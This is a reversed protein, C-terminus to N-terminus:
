CSTPLDGAPRQWLKAFIPRKDLRGDDHRRSNLSCANRQRIRREVAASMARPNCGRRWRLRSASSSSRRHGGGDSSDRRAAGSAREGAVGDLFFPYLPVDHKQPWDLYIGRRIRQRLRQRSQAPRAHRGADSARRRGAGAHRYRGSQRQLQDAPLARLADNGGLEVLLHTPRDALVWDVRGLGGASTDGSVGADIVKCTSGAESWRRQWAPRSAKTRGRRWLRGDAFQRPHRAPVRRRAPLPLWVAAVVALAGSPQVKLALGHEPWTMSCGRGCPRRSAGGHDIRSLRGASGSWGPRAPGCGRPISRSIAAPSATLTTPGDPEPLDLRSAMTPPM